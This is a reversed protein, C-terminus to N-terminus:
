ARQPKSLPTAIVLPPPATRQRGAVRQCVGLLMRCPCQSLVTPTRCAICAVVAVSGWGHGADPLMPGLSQRRCLRAPWVGCAFGTAGNGM